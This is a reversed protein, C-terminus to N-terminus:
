QFYQKEVNSDNSNNYVKIVILIHVYKLLIFKSLFSDYTTCTRHPKGSNIETFYKTFATIVVVVVVVTNEKCSLVIM